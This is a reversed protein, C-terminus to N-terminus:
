KKGNEGLDVCIEGSVTETFSGAPDFLNQVGALTLTGTAGALKGTSAGVDGSAVFAGTTLDLTGDLDVTLTARNTTFTVDGAFVIGTSDM